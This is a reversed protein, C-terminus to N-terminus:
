ARLSSSRNARESVDADATHRTADDADRRATATAAAPTFRATQNLEPRAAENGGDQAPSSREEGQYNSARNNERATVIAAGILTGLAIAAFAGAIMLGIPGCCAAILAALATVAFTTWLGVELATPKRSPIRSRSSHSTVVLAAPRRDRFLVPRRSSSLGRRTTLLRRSSQVDRRTLPITSAPTLVRAPLTSPAARTVRVTPASTHAVRATPRSTRVTPAPARAPRSHGFGSGTHVFRHSSHAEAPMRRGREPPRRFM